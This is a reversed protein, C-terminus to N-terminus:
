DRAVPILDYRELLYRAQIIRGDRADASLETWEIFKIEGLPAGDKKVVKNQLVAERGAEHLLRALIEPDNIRRAHRELLRVYDSHHAAMRSNKGM